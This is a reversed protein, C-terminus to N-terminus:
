RRPWCKRRRPSVPTTRRSTLWWGMIGPAGDRMLTFVAGPQRPYASPDLRVLRLSAPVPWPRAPQGCGARPPRRAPSSANPSACEAQCGRLRWPRLRVRAGELAWRGSSRCSAGLWRVRRDEQRRGDPLKDTRRPVPSCLATPPPGAHTKAAPGSRPPVAVTRVSAEGSGVGGGVSRCRLPRYGWWQRLAIGPRTDVRHGRWCRRDPHKGSRCARRSCWRKWEVRLCRSYPRMLPWLSVSAAEVRIEVWTAVISDPRPAAGGATDGLLTQYLALVRTRTFDMATPPCFAATLAQRM